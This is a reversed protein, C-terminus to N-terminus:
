QGQTKAFADAVITVLKHTKLWTSSWKKRELQPLLKFLDFLCLGVYVKKGNQIKRRGMEGNGENIAGCPM